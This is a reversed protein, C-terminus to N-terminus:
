HITPPQVNITYSMILLPCNQLSLVLRCTTHHSISICYRLIHDLKGIAESYAKVADNFQGVSLLTDARNILPVLGPPYLASGGEASPDALATPILSLSISVLTTLVLRVRM